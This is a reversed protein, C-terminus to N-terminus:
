GRRGALPISPSKGGGGGGGRRAAARRPDIRALPTLKWNAVRLLDKLDESHADRIGNENLIEEAAEQVEKRDLVLVESNKDAFTITLREGKSDRLLEGLHRLNRVKNGDVADVVYSAPSSYGKSVRHPFLAVAVVMQEGEFRPFDGRRAVMPNQNFTLSPYWRAAMSEQGFDDLYDETSAAFALPGWVLYSPERGMLQPMVKKAAPNRTVRLMLDVPGGDRYVKVPVRGDKALKQVLYRYDVRLEDNVKVKGAIDIPRDGIANVVDMPRLTGVGGLGAPRRCLMGNVDRPLKLSARLAKNEATQMTDIIQPKGDYTGDAIDKLFLEIEENPIIYGINDADDLRNFIIGIMRDDIFAPGGSNGPNIAADVQIRLGMTGYYYEEFEIRSVIGRTIALNDGGLPYGYALLTDKVKPLDAHRLLPAHTDFFSPDDLKLVALDIDDALFELTAMIKEGSRDPEVLIRSSYKVLQANTLIRRGEIVVGSGNMDRQPHHTWPRHLDPRRQIAHVRVVSRSVDVVPPEGRGVRCAAVSLFFVAFVLRMRM